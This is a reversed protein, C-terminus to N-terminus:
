WIKTHLADEKSNDDAEDGSIQDPMFLVWARALAMDFWARAM